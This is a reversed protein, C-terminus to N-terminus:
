LKPSAAVTLTAQGAVWVPGAQTLAVQGEDLYPLPCADVYSNPGQWRGVGPGCAKCPGWGLILSPSLAGISLSQM